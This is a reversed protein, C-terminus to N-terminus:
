TVTNYAHKYQLTAHTNYHIDITQINYIYIYICAYIYIYIDDSM